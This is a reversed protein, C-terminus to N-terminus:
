STDNNVILPVWGLELSGWAERLHETEEWAKWPACLLSGFVCLGPGPPHPAPGPSFRLGAAWVGEWLLAAVRPGWSGRPLAKGSTPGGGRSLGPGPCGTVGVPWHGM